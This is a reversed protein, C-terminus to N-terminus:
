ETNCTGGQEDEIREITLRLSIRSTDEDGGFIAQLDDQSIEDFDYFTRLILYRDSTDVEITIGDPMMHRASEWFEVADELTMHFHDLYYDIEFFAEEEMIDVTDGSAELQVSSHGPFGEEGLFAQDVECITVSEGGCASLALVFISLVAVRKVIKLM